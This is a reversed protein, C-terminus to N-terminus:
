RLSKSEVWEQKLLSYLAIDQVEEGVVYAQRLVGEQTFHLKQAVKQSKTNNVACKIEIRNLNLVEFGHRILAKVSKNIIGQGTFESGLWYGIEAQKHTHKISIFGVTGAIQGKWIVILSMSKNDAFGQLSHNIFNASDQVTKNAEVWSLWLALHERNKDTLEFLEQAMSSSPLALSLEDDIQYSFLM